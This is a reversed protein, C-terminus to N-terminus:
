LEVTVSGQRLVQLKGDEVSVLTSAPTSPLQGADLIVALSLDYTTGLTPDEGEPKVIGPFSDQICKTDYCSEQGSINASTATIPVDLQQVLEKMMPHDVMRLGVKGNQSLYALSEQPTLLVTVAQGTYKQILSAEAETLSFYTDYLEPKMCVTLAKDAPRAKLNRVRQIAHGQLADAGLGYSTGTPFAVVRGSQIAAVAESINTTLSASM